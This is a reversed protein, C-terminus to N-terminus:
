SIRSVPTYIMYKPSLEKFFRRKNGKKALTTKAWILKTVLVHSIFCYIISAKQPFDPLYLFESQREFTGDRLYGSNFMKIYKKWAKKEFM